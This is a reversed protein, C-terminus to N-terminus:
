SPHCFLKLHETYKFSYVVREKPRDACYVVLSKLLVRSFSSSTIHCFVIVRAEETKYESLVHSKSWDSRVCTGDINYFARLLLHLFSNYTTVIFQLQKIFWALLRSCLVIILSDDLWWIKYRKTIFLCWLYNLELDWRGKTNCTHERLLAGHKKESHNVM